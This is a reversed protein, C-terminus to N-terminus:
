YNEYVIKKISSISLCYDVALSEKSQGNQFKEKIESNRNALEKKVGSKTGWESRIGQERPIYVYQGQCYRQIEEILEQPLINEASTYKV